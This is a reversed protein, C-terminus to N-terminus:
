MFKVRRKFNEKNNITMNKNFEFRVRGGALLDFELGNPDDYLKNYLEIVDGNFEENAKHLISESPVGKMRIHYDFIDKGDKDQSKLRDCYCKKGLFVSDVAFIETEAGDLEFDTHFQGMDNGILVRGYKEKFDNGLLPVKDSDIHISDTDTIYMNYKKDEALTMVEYMIRKSMSLIEVGCHVNNFHTDISKITEVKVMKGDPLDTATKIDNYYRHLFTEFYEKKIYKKETDIPKMFSKGYSSNMLEKFVMQIPNKEKKFKLRQNFLHRMTDKIKTNRGEDYYYGMIFTYEINQFNILDELGVKDMYVEKGVLDNTFDRIGNDTLVSACPFNYKKGIKTIKIKVFYGDYNNPEFNKIVKPRGMLFGDMRNMASPYLSVADFDSIKCNMKRHKVNKATMCRGGVVCNQIFHRPVGSIQFVNEYCGNIKLYDDAMSALTLYNNIDQGTAEHVLQQFKEYGNKLTMCDMYCYEGAYKLIDIKDDKICEWRKCNELYEDEDDKSVFSLCYDIDLNKEEVNEETYLSYPMIEKKVDLNFCKGFKKLPMNIMKLSCGIEISLVLDRNYALANCSMISNSKEITKVNYLHKLLYRFDYGANHAILKLNIKHKYTLDIMEHQKHTGYKNVLEDLLQKACDEGFFGNRHKDTYVCYPKHETEVGDNRSTTAEFDFYVIDLTHGIGLMKSKNIKTNLKEDYELSGFDKVKNHFNSKYINQNYTLLKLCKEKNEFLYKIIDYSTIFRDKRKYKDKEKTYIRNFERENKIDHYNKICYSTYNTKEILFFHDAILGINVIKNKSDGYRRLNTQCKISKLVIQIKLLNSIEDLKTIPINRNKVIHLIPTIELGASKLTHCICNIDYKGDVQEEQEKTYVGYRSLDVKNLDHTFPFFGGGPKPKFSLKLKKDGVVINSLNVIEVKKKSKLFTFFFSDSKERKEIVEYENFYNTLRTLNGPHLTIYTYEPPPIVPVPNGDYPNTREKQQSVPKINSIRLLYQNDPNLLQKFKEWETSLNLLNTNISTYKDKLGNGSFYNGTQNSDLIVDKNLEKRLNKLYDKKTKTSKKLKKKYKEREKMTRYKLVDGEIYNRVNNKIDEKKVFRDKRENYIVGEKPLFSIFNTLGRRVQDKNWDIFKKSLKKSKLLPNKNPFKKKYISILRKRENKPNIDTNNIVQNNLVIDNTIVENSMDLNTSIIKPTNQTKLKSM